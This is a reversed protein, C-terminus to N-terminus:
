GANKQGSWQDCRDDTVVGRYKWRAEKMEVVDNLFLRVLHSGSKHGFENLSLSPVQGVIDASTDEMFVILKCQLSLCEQSLSPYTDKWTECCEWTVSLVNLLVYM